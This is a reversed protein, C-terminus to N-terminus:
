KQRPSHMVRNVPANLTDFYLYTGASIAPVVITGTFTAGPAIPGTTFGIGPIALEHNEDLANRM